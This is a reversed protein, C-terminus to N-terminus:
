SDIGHCMKHIIHVIFGMLKCGYEDMLGISRLIFSVPVKQKVNNTSVASLLAHMRMFRNNM